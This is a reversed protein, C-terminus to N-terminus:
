SARRLRYARQRCADSCTSAGRRRGMMPGNCISCRAGVDIRLVAAVRARAEALYATSRDCGIGIRGEAVAVAATTGSGAFPDLVVDGV